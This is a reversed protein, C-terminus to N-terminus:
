AAEEPNPDTSRGIDAEDPRLSVAPDIVEATNHVLDAVQEFLWRATEDDSDFTVELSRSTTATM